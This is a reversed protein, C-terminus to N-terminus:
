TAAKIGLYMAGGAGVAQALNTPMGDPIFDTFADVVLAGVAIITVVGVIMDLNAV